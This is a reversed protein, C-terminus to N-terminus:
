LDINFAKFVADELACGLYHPMSGLDGDFNMYIPNGAVSGGHLFKETQKAQVVVLDPDQARRSHAHGLPTPLVEPSVRRWFEM